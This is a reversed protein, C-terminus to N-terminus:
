NSVGLGCHPVQNPVWPYAYEYVVQVISLVKVDADCLLGILSKLLGDVLLSGRSQSSARQVHGMM